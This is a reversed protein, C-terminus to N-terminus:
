RHRPKVSATKDETNYIIIYKDRNIQEPSVEHDFEDIFTYGEDVTMQWIDNRVAHHLISATIVITAAYLLLVINLTKHKGTHDSSWCILVFGAFVIGAMTLLAMILSLDLLDQVTMIGAGPVTSEVQIDM